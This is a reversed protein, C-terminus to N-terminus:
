LFDLAARSLIRLRDMEDFGTGSRTSTDDPMRSRNKTHPAPSPTSQSSECADGVEVSESKIAEYIERLLVVNRERPSEDELIHLFKTVRDIRMLVGAELQKDRMETNAEIVTHRFHSDGITAITEPSLLPSVDMPENVCLLCVQDLYFRIIDVSGIDSSDSIIDRADM